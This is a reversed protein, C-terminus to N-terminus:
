VREVRRVDLLQQTMETWLILLLRPKWWLPACTAKIVAGGVFMVKSFVQRM